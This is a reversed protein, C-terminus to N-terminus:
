SMSLRILANSDYLVFNTGSVLNRKVLEQLRARALDFPIERFEDHVAVASDHPPELRVLDEIGGVAHVREFFADFGQQVSGDGTRLVFCDFLM